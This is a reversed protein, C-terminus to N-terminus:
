FTIVADRANDACGDLLIAVSFKSTKTSIHCHNALSTDHTDFSTISKACVWPLGCVSYRLKGRGPTLIKKLNFKQKNKPKKINLTHHNVSAHYLLLVMLVM